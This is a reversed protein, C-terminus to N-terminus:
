TTVQSPQSTGAYAVERELTEPTLVEEVRPAEYEAVNPTQSQDTNPTQLESNM